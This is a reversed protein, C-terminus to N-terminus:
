DILGSARCAKVHKCGAPDLGDRRWVFDGCSCEAGYLGDLVDHFTGDLKTLRFSRTRGFEPAHKHVRYAVGNIRLTLSCRGTVPKPTPELKPEAKPKPLRIGFARSRAIDKQTVPATATTTAM